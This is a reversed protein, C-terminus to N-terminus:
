SQEGEHDRDNRNLMCLCGSANCGGNIRHMIMPHNCKIEEEEFLRETGEIKEWDWEELWVDSPLVIVYQGEVTDITVCNDLMRVRKADWLKM